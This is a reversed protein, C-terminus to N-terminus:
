AVDIPRSRTGGHQYFPRDEEEGSEEDDEKRGGDEGKDENDHEGDESDSGDDSVEVAARKRKQGVKTDRPEKKIAGKRGPPTKKVKKQKEGAKPKPPPPEWVPFKAALERQFTANYGVCKMTYVGLSEEGRLFAQGIEDPTVDIHKQAMVKDYQKETYKKGYTKRLFVRAVTPRGWPKVNLVQAWTLRVAASESAWEEKTFSMAGGLKYQGQYQWLAPSDTIRTLVTYVTPDSSSMGGSTLEGIPSFWLGPAGPMQPAGSQYELSLCMFNRYNHLAQFKPGIEPFTLQMTGGYNMSLFKRSVMVERTEMDLEVPYPDFGIPRLRDRITDYSFMLGENKKVKPNQLKSLREDIEKNSEEARIVSGGFVEHLTPVVVADM